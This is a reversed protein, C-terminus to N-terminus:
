PLEGKFLQILDEANRIGFHMDVVEGDRGIVILPTSPPSLVQDGFADALSRAFEPTARAFRWDFGWRDAYEALDEDRENPDVGISVYVIDPDALSALASAAISQQTFCNSCWAAMPEVAIVNGSLGEVTFTDGSIADVLAATRWTPNGASGATDANTGAGSGASCAAALILAALPVVLTRWRM